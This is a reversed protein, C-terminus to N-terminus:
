WRGKKKTKREPLQGSEFRIKDRNLLVGVRNGGRGYHRDKVIVLGEHQQFDESDKDRNQAITVWLDADEEIVRGNKTDGDANLQTPLIIHIELEEALSKLAHSAETISKLESGEGPVRILQAYDVCAVKIKNKRHHARIKALIADLRNGKVRDIFFPANALKTVGKRIRGLDDKTPSDPFMFTSTPVHSAQILARDVLDSATMELPLFLTPVGMGAADVLIQSSLVSKGGSPYAGIVTMRGPHLGHVHYDLEPVTPIGEVKEEGNIRALFAELRAQIISKTDLAESAGALTELVVSLGADAHERFDGSGGSVDYASNIADNAMQIMQRRAKRDRLEQVHRDFHSAHPAYGWIDAIAPTGGVNDLQGQDHMKQALNVMECDEPGESEDIYGFLTKHSPKYFHGADLGAEEVKHPEKMLVSLVSKEYNISHPLERTDNM